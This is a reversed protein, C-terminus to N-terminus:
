APCSRCSTPRAMALERQQEPLGPVAEPAGTAAAYAPHRYVVAGAADRLELLLGARHYDFSALHVELGLLAIGQAPSLPRWRGEGVDRIGAAALAERMGPLLTGAAQATGALMTAQGFAAGCYPCQPLGAPLLAGCDVSTSTTAV